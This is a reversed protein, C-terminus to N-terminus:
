ASVRNPAEGAQGDLHASLIDKLVDKILAEYDHQTPKFPNFGTPELLPMQEKKIRKETVAQYIKSARIAAIRSAETKLKRGEVPLKLGKLATDNSRVTPSASETKIGSQKALYRLRAQKEQTLRHKQYLYPTQKSLIHWVLEAMKRAVAIKAINHGKKKVIRQYASALPSPTRILAEASEALFWRAEARGQKTIRGHFSRLDGSQYTSPVLGFYSALKKPSSFRSIDGIASLIGAASVISIGDITMLLDIDNLMKKDSCVFAAIIKETNEIRSNVSDIEDRYDEVLLKELLPLRSIDLAKFSADSAFVKPREYEVLNRHLISHVDNKVATRRRVLNTRRSVLRRLSETGEDPLWVDPLFGVRALECLVRADIKDTKVRASAILKTKMPNSVLVRARCKEKFLRAIAFSNTTMEFTVTDLKTMQSAIQEFERVTSAFRREEIIKGDADMVCLQSERKALDIAFFRPSKSINPSHQSTDKKARPNKSM